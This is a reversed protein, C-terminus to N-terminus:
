RSPPPQVPEPAEKLITRYYLRSGDKPKERMLAILQGIARQAEPTTTVVLNEGDAKTEIVEAKVNERLFAAVSEAKEKSLKYTARSLVMEGSGGQGRVVRATEVTYPVAPVPTHAPRAPAATAPALMVPQGPARPKSTGEQRLAQVERLLEQLHREVDQLRKDRDAGPSTALARVPTGPAGPRAEVEVVKVEVPRVVPQSTAAPPDKRPEPPAQGASWAPLAVLALLGILLLGGVPVTCPMRERMIMVLRRELDRRGAGMGLAPAPAATRSALQSVELLAEAYARRAEPLAWVVWADCALEANRRLERRAHWYVPNWWWLCGAVVQLWGVWHDRRRLHALEHALVSRRSAAPMGDLLEAPWLLTPPGLAWVMPSAIGDLVRVAPPRVGLRAAMEEMEDLLWGPAPKGHGVKRRFRVVRAVQLGAMAAGGALWLWGAVEGPWTPLEWALTGFTGAPPAPGEGAEPVPTAPMVGAVPAGPVAVDEDADAEAPDADPLEAAAVESLVVGYKRGVNVQPPDAAALATLAPSWRGAVDAVSWPWEFVPPALLKVVVLLWLAHRVAPRFRGLRCALNVLAALAAAAVANQALWWLM